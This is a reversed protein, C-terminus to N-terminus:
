GKIYTFQWCLHISVLSVSICILIIVRPLILGFRSIIKLHFYSSLYQLLRYLPVLLLGGTGQFSTQPSTQICGLLDKIMKDILFLDKKNKLLTQNNIKKLKQFLSLQSCIKEQLEFICSIFNQKEPIQERFLAQVIIDEFFKLIVYFARRM